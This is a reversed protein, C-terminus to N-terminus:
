VRDKIGKEEFLKNIEEQLVEYQTRPTTEYTANGTFLADAEYSDLGLLKAAKTSTTHSRMQGNVIFLNPWDKKPTNLLVTWGALCAKTNCAAWHTDCIEWEGPSNKKIGYLGMELRRIDKKIHKMVKKFMAVNIKRAM